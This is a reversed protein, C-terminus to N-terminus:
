KILQKGELGCFIKKTNTKNNVVDVSFLAHSDVIDIFCDVGFIDGDQVCVIEYYSINGKYIFPIISEYHAMGDTLVTLKFARKKGIKKTINTLDNHIEIKTLEM